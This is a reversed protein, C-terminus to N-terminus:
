EGVVNSFIVSPFILDTQVAQGTKPDNFAFKPETPSTRRLKDMVAVIDNLSVAEDPVLDLRFIHPYKKKVAMAERKLAELDAKGQNSAVVTSHSAGQDKVVLEFSSQKNMKLEISVENPSKNQEDIANQVTQPLTSEIINIKLFVVSMLLMPIVAVIIDLMPALNLAFTSEEVRRRFRGM